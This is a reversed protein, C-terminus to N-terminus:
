PMLPLPVLVGRFAVNMGGILPYNSRISTPLDLTLEIVNSNEPANYTGVLVGGYYGESSSLIARLALAKAQNPDSILTPSLIPSGNFDIYLYYQATNSPIAPIHQASYRIFHHSNVVASGSGMFSALGNGPTVLLKQRENFIFDGLFEGLTVYVANHLYLFPVIKVSFNAPLDPPVQFDFFQPYVQILVASNSPLDKTLVFHSRDKICYFELNLNEMPHINTEDKDDLTFDALNVYGLLRCRYLYSFATSYDEGGVVFTFGIRTGAPIIEDRDNVIFFYQPFGKANEGGYVPKYVVPRGVSYSDQALDLSPPLNYAIRPLAKGYPCLVFYNTAVKIHAHSFAAFNPLNKYLIYYAEDNDVYFLAGNFYNAVNVSSFDTTSTVTKQFIFHDEKTLDLVLPFLTLGYTSNLPNDLDFLWREYIQTYHSESPKKACIVISHWKESAWLATAPVTLRIGQGGAITATTKPAYYTTGSLNKFYYTFEYTNGNSSVFSASISPAAISTAQIAVSPNDRGYAYTTFTM